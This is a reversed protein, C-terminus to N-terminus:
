GFRLARYIIRCTKSHPQGRGSQDASPAIETMSRRDRPVVVV